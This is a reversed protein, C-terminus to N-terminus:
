PRLMRVARDVLGARFEETVPQHTLLLRLHIPALLTEIAQAADIDAAAEGRRQARRVVEAARGVVGAWYGRAAEAVHPDASGAVLRQLTRAAPTAATAAARAVLRSLDGRLTDTDPPPTGLPTLEILLDAVLGDTSLWRRYLTARHVGASEALRDFSLREPDGSDLARRLADFVRARVQANRGGPRARVQDIPPM